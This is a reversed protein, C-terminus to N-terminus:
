IKGNEDALTEVLIETNLINSGREVLAIACRRVVNTISGGSLETEAAMAILEEADDGLWDKPLM